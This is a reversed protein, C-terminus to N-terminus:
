AGATATIGVPGRTVATVGKMVEFQKVSIDRIAPLAKIQAILPGNLFADASAKSDFLYIGGAEQSEANLIWVKWMLGAVGAL